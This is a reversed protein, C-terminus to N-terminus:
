YTFGGASNGGSRAATPGVPRGGSIAAMAAAAAVRDQFNKEVETEGEEAAGAFYRRGSGGPVGRSSSSSSHASTAGGAASDGAVGGQQQQQQQTATVPPSVLNLRRLPSPPRRGPGGSTPRSSVELTDVADVPAVVGRPATRKGSDHHSDDTPVANHPARSDLREAAASSDVSLAGGVIPGQGNALATFDGAAVADAELDVCEVARLLRSRLTGHLSAPLARVAATAQKGVAAAVGPQARLAKAHGSVEGLVEAARRQQEETIGSVAPDGLRRTLDGAVIDMVDAASFKPDADTLALLTGVISKRSAAVARNAFDFLSTLADYSPLRVIGAVSPRLHDRRRVRRDCEPCHLLECPNALDIPRAAPARMAQVTASLLAQTTTQMVTVPAGLVTRATVSLNRTSSLDVDGGRSLSSNLGDTSGGAGRVISVASGAPVTVKMLTQQRQRMSTPDHSADLNQMLTRVREGQEIVSSTVDRIPRLPDQISGSGYAMNLANAATSSNRGPTPTATTRSVSPAETTKSSVHRLMSTETRGHGLRSLTSLPRGGGNTTDSAATMSADGGGTTTITTTSLLDRARPPRGSPTSTPVRADHVPSPPAESTAPDAGSMSPAVCASTGALPETASTLAVPLFQGEPTAAIYVGYEKQHYETLCAECFIHACPLVITARKVINDCQCCMLARRMQTVSNLLHDAGTIYAREKVKLKLAIESSQLSRIESNLFKIESQLKQTEAARSQETEVAERDAQQLQDTMQAAVRELDARRGEFVEKEAELAEAKKTAAELAEAATDRGDKAANLQDRLEAITDNQIRLQVNLMDLQQQVSVHARELNEMDAASPRRDDNQHPGVMFRAAGLVVNAVRRWKSRVIPTLTFGGDMMSSELRLLPRSQRASDSTGASGNSTGDQDQSAERSGNRDHHDRRSDATATDGDGEGTATGRRGNSASPGHTATANAGSAHTASTGVASSSRDVTPRRAAAGGVSAVVPKTSGSRTGTTNRGNIRATAGAANRGPGKVAPGSEGFPEADDKGDAGAAERDAKRNAAELKRQLYAIRRGLEDKTDTLVGAAGRRAAAVAADVNADAGADVRYQAIAVADDIAHDIQDQTLLTCQTARNWRGRV